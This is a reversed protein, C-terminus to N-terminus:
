EEDDTFKIYFAPPEEAENGEKDKWTVAKDRYGSVYLRLNKEDDVVTCVRNGQEDFGDYKPLPTFEKKAM